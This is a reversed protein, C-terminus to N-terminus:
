RFSKIALSKCRIVLDARSQRTGGRNSAKCTYEDADEGYCDKIILFHTDGEKGMEYRNSDVLERAGKYWTITPPPQGDVRVELRAQRGQVAQVDRLGSLFEPARAAALILSLMESITNPPLEIKMTVNRPIRHINSLSFCLTFYLM